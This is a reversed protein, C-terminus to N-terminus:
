TQGIVLSARSEEVIAKTLQSLGNVELTRDSDALSEAAPFERTLSIIM